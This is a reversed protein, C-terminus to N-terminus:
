CNMPTYSDIILEIKSFYRNPINYSKGRSKDLSLSNFDVSFNM